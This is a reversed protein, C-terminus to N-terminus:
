RSRAVSPESERAGRVLEPRGDDPTMADRGLPAVFLFHQGDASPVYRNRANAPQVRGLFLPKPVGAEFAAGVKVDVAM